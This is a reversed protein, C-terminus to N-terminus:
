RLPASPTMIRRIEETYRASATGPPLLKMLRGGGDFLYVLGSHAVLAGGAGDAEVSYTTRFARAAQDLEARSGTLAIVQPGFARAYSALAAPRDRAPDVSIFLIRARRAAAPGLARLGASAAAITTPCVDPCNTYGFLVIRVKGAFSRDTVVRGDPARLTFPHGVAPIAGQAAGTGALALAIALLRRRIM